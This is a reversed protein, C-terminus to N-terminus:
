LGYGNLSELDFDDFNLSSQYEDWKVKDWIEVKNGQGISVVEKDIGAFTRLNQPIMVRGNADPECENAGSLRFRKYSTALKDTSPIKNFNEVLKIWADMTYIGLCGDVEKSIVFNAGLGERFKAPIIARGKADINHEYEGIFMIGGSESWKTGSGVM